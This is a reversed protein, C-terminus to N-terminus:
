GPQRLSRAMRSEFFSWVAQVLRDADVGDAAAAEGLTLTKPVSACRALTQLGQGALLRRTAPYSSVLWYLSMGAHVQKRALWAPVPSGLTMGLNLGFLLVASLELLASLPLLRWAVAVAGSYAAPESVVRLACGATLLWLSARMLVPRWLERSNLFSPLIRMGISFILTALFGVTLAHRSAGLVGPHSAGLGLLSAIALWVYALRAFWPYHPDVGTTKVPRVTSRFVGLSWGGLLAAGAVAVAASRPFDMMYGAAALALMALSARAGGASPKATGILGPFFRACFGLVVPLYFVWLALAILVQNQALPILPAPLPRLLLALQWSLTLILGGFGAFILTEWIEGSRHSPGRASCQWVLLIAVLLELAASVPWAVRWGAEWVGTSWRAALAVFWMALMLWGVPVSRTMGGRFKPVTYLSIGLIFTGVWGFLQAHGHAQIWVASVAEAQHRSSIGLLNWVGLLTGPLILFFLGTAIFGALLRALRREPAPDAFPPKGLAADLRLAAIWAEPLPASTASANEM